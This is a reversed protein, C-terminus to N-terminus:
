WPKFLLLMSRCWYEYEDDGRNPCPLSPGLIVPVFDVERIRSMHSKHQEHQPLFKGQPLAPRGAWKNYTGEANLAAKARTASNLRALRSDEMGKTFKTVTAAYDWVSLNSFAPEESQLLYDAVEDTRTVSDREVHVLIEEEPRDNPNSGDDIHEEPSPVLDYTSTAPFNVPTKTSATDLITELNVDDPNIDPLIEPTGDGDNDVSPYWIKERLEKRIFRDLDGYRLLRFKHSAYVDGGGVTYSMIQQHSTEQRAMIANVTKTFLSKQRESKPTSRKVGVYKAENQKIAYSLADLGVHTALTNKTIYDSIYYVLAKAAEGSGIYKIDMNCRMLFM